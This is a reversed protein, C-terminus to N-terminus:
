NYSQQSLLLYPDISYEVEKGAPFEGLDLELYSVGERVDWLYMSRQEALSGFVEPLLDKLLGSWCAEELEERETKRPQNASPDNNSLQRSAFSTGTVILVEQQTSNTNM